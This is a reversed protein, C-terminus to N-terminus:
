KTCYMYLFTRARNARNSGRETATALRRHGTRDAPELLIGILCAPPPIFHPTVKVPVGPAEGEALGLGKSSAVCSPGIRRPTMTM